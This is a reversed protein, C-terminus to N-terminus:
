IEDLHRSVKVVTPASPRAGFLLQPRAFLDESFGLRLSSGQLDFQLVGTILYINLDSAPLFSLRLALLQYTPATPHGQM